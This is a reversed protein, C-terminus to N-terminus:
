APRAPSHLRAAAAAVFEDLAEDPDESGMSAATVLDWYPHYGGRGSAALWLALFRDAEAVGHHLAINVRCHAVDVEPAGVCSSVWDVIGSIENGTWLINGPHFDRHVFVREASPGPGDCVEFAQEWARRHKTWALPLWEPDPAYPKWDALEPAAAVPARHIVPLIEALGRLWNEPDAPAWVVQGPVGSMVTTPTGTATGDPDAALLRPAPIQPSDALLRLVLAENGPVWPEEAVWDLVYRRLVVAFPNGVPDEMSLLHVASSTGGELPRVNQVRAGLESEVWQLAEQPPEGRLREHLDTDLNYGYATPASETVQGYKCLQDNGRLANGAVQKPQGCLGGVYAARM